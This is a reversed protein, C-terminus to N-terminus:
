EIPFVLHCVVNYTYVIRFKELQFDALVVYEFCNQKTGSISIPVDSKDFRLGPFRTTGLWAEVSM